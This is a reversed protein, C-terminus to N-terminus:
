CNASRFMGSCRRGGAGFTVAGITGPQEFSKTLDGGLTSMSPLSGGRRADGGPAEGYGPLFGYPGCDASGSMANCGLAPLALAVLLASLAAAVTGRVALLAEPEKVFIAGVNCPRGPLALGARAANVFDALARYAPPPMADKDRDAVLNAAAPERSRVNQSSDVCDGAMDKICLPYEGRM